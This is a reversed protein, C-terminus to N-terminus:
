EIAGIIASSNSSDVNLESHFRGACSHGEADENIASSRVAIGAPSFRKVTEELVFGPNASWQSFTFVLMSEIRSCSLKKRLFLLTDAKTM